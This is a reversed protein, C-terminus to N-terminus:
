VSAHKNMRDKLTDLESILKAKQDEFKQFPTLALAVGLMNIDDYTLRVIASNPM